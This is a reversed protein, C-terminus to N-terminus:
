GYRENLVEVLARADSAGADTATWLRQAPSLKQWVAKRGEVTLSRFKVASCQSAVALAPRETRLYQQIASQKSIRTTM